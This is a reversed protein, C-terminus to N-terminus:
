LPPQASPYVEPSSRGDWRQQAQASCRREQKALYMRKDAVRLLDDPTEGDEPFLAVGVSASPTVMKGVLETPERLARELRSMAELAERPSTVQDLVVVFEDGGLRALTEAERVSQRMRDAVTKLLDDGAEHGLIDNVLKFDNLDFFLV